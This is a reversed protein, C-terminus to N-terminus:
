TADYADLALNEARCERSTSPSVRGRRWVSFCTRADRSGALRRALACIAAVHIAQGSCGAAGSDSGAWAETKAFGGTGCRAVRQNRNGRPTPYAGRLRGAAGAIGRATNKGADGSTDEH